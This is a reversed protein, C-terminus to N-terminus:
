RDSKNCSTFNGTTDKARGVTFWGLITRQYTHLPYLRSLSYELQSVTVRPSHNKGLGGVGYQSDPQKTEIVNLIKLKLL